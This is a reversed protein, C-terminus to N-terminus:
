VLDGDNEEDLEVWATDNEDYSENSSNQPERGSYMETIYAVHEESIFANPAKSKLLNIEKTIKDRSHHDNVRHDKKWVFFGCIGNM